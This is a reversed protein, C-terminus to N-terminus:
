QSVTVQIESSEPSEVGNAVATVVYYYTTGAVVTHDTFSLASTTGVNVYDWLRV